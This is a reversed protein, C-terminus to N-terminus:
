GSKQNALVRFRYYSRSPRGFTFCVFIWVLLGLLAVMLIYDPISIREQVVLPKDRLVLHVYTTSASSGNFIIDRTDNYITHFGRVIWTLLLGSTVFYAWHQRRGLVISLLVTASLSLTAIPRWNQRLSVGSRGTIVDISFIVFITTVIALVGIAWRHSVPRKLQDIEQM